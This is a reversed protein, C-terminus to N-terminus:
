KMRKESTNTEPSSRTYQSLSLSLSLSLRHQLDLGTQRLVLVLFLFLIAVNQKKAKSFLDIMAEEEPSSRQEETIREEKTNSFVL